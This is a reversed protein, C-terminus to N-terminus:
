SEAPGVFKRRERRVDDLVFHEVAFRDTEVARNAHRRLSTMEAANVRARDNYNKCDGVLRFGRLDEPKECMENTDRREERAQSNARLV